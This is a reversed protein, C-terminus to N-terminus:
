PDFVPCVGDRHFGWGSPLVKSTEGFDVMYENAESQASVRTETGEVPLAYADLVIFTDGALKGQPLFLPM